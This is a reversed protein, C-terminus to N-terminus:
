SDSGGYHPRSSLRLLAAVGAFQDDVLQGFALLDKRLALIKELDDAMEFEGLEPTRNENNTTRGRALNPL